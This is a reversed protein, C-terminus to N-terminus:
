YDYVQVVKQFVYGTLNRSGTSPRSALALRLLVQRGSGPGGVAVEFGFPKNTDFPALGPVNSQQAAVAQLPVAPYSADAPASTNFAVMCEAYANRANFTLAAQYRDYEFRRLTEPVLDLFSSTVELKTYAPAAVVAMGADVAQLNLAGAYPGTGSAHDRMALLKAAIFSNPSPTLPPSKTKMKTMWQKLENYDLFPKSRWHMLQYTFSSGARVRGNVAMSRRALFYLHLRFASLQQQTDGFTDNQPQPPTAPDKVIVRQDLAVFMLANGMKTRDFNPNQSASMDQIYFQAQPQITPFVLDDAVIEPTLLGAGNWPSKLDTRKVWESAQAADFIKRSGKLERYLDNLGQEASQKLFSGGVALAQVKTAGLYASIGITMVTVSIGAAVLVEILSFGPRGGPKLEVSSPSLSRM